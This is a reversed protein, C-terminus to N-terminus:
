GRTFQDPDPFGFWHSDEFLKRNLELVEIQRYLNSYFDKQAELIESPDTSLNDNM